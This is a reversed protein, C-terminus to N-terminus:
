VVVSEDFALICRRLAWINNVYSKLQGAKTLTQLLESSLHRTSEWSRTLRDFYKESKFLEVPGIKEQTGGVLERLKDIYNANYNWYTAAGLEGFWPYDRKVVSALEMKNFMDPLFIEETKNVKFDLHRLPLGPDDIFWVVKCGRFVDAIWASCMCCPRWPSIFTYGEFSQKKPNGQLWALILATEAHHTKNIKNTNVSWALPKMTPDLLLGSVNLGDLFPVYFNKLRKEGADLSGQKFADGSPPQATASGSRYCPLQSGWAFNTYLAILTWWLSSGPTVGKHDSWQYSAEFKGLTQAEKTIEEQYYKPVKVTGIDPTL